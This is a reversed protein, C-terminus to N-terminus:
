AANRTGFVSIFSNLFGDQDIDGKDLDFNNELKHINEALMEFAALKQENENNSLCEAMLNKCDSFLKEVLHENVKQKNILDM